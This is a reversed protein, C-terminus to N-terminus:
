ELDDERLFEGAELPRRLRRGIMARFGAEGVGHGPKRFVFDQASLEAGAAVARAAMASKGFLARLKDMGEAARDKDVPCRTMTDMWRLGEVLRALDEPVLSAPVDPGFMHRSMTVHVEVAQAGKVAAALSPYITGSHDSLGVPCHFRSRLEDLVNLGIQEPAAPYATVCQMLLFRDPAIRRLMEVTEGIHAYSSMGTSVLMPKGTAAVREMLSLSHIEGSPIKWAQMGLGDLLEVAELSFPSSLFLLGREEAHAKLGAWQDRTFSTRRWYDFRCADQRSFAVRFPEAPSSEAEAMHTQFKVAGAGCQAILDIFAHAMGLSGDHGLGVEAILLPGQRGSVDTFM